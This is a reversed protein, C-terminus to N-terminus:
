FHEFNLFMSLIYKAPQSLPSVSKKSVVCFGHCIIQKEALATMAFNGLTNHM